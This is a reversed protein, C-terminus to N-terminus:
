VTLASTILFHQSFLMIFVCTSQRHGINKGGELIVTFSAIICRRGSTYSRSSCSDGHLEIQSHFCWLGQGDLIFTPLLYSITVFNLPFRTIYPWSAAYFANISFIVCACILHAYFLSMCIPLFAPIALVIYIISCDRSQM